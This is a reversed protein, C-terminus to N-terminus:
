NQENEKHKFRIYDEDKKRRICRVKNHENKYMLLKIGGNFDLANVQVGWEDETSSWYPQHLLGKDCDVGANYIIQLEVISPLYWDSFGLTDIQACM